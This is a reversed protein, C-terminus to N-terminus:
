SALVERFAEQGGWGLYECWGTSMSPMQNWCTDMQVCVCGVSQPCQQGQGWRGQFSSPWLKGSPEEGLEGAGQSMRTLSALTGTLELCRGLNTLLLTWLSGEDAEYTVEPAQAAQHPSLLPATVRM